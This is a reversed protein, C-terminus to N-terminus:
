SMHMGGNVHLTEGNIFAAEPGALFAVAAAIDAVAGLRGTPIQELLAARQDDDLARTMDTEIFGPAVVNVTIGRGGVERALSKSMGVLGAKASCYNVQGANGLAGVISGVSIIRGGRAKMMPRLAARACGFAASLNTDVVADWDEDKMRMALGDRTIGANNVLIDIQSLEGILARVADRDRVDLVRGEGGEGLAEGIARAGQESTATGVVHAGDAALRACIAAGIGRSGGTVLATRGELPKQM